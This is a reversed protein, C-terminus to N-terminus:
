MDEGVTAPREILLCRSLAQAYAALAAAKEVTLPPDFVRIEITGYEPKQRIDWYFDKVNEAIGCGRMPEFYAAFEERREILPTHGSLPFAFM